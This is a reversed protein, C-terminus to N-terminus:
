SMMIMMVDLMNVSNFPQFYTSHTLPSIARAPVVKSSDEFTLDDDDDNEEFTLDDDDDNDEFTLDDDDYNEEFTLDNDDDYEEFTLDDNGNYITMPMMIM